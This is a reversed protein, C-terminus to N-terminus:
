PAVLRFYQAGTPSAIVARNTPSPVNFWNSTALDVNAQLHFQPFFESWAVEVGNTQRAIRLTPHGNPDAFGVTASPAGLNGAMYARVFYRAGDPPLNTVTYIPTRVDAIETGDRYVKYGSVGFDDDADRWALVGNTTMTNTAPMWWAVNLGDVASPPNTDARGILFVRTDHLSFNFTYTRGENTYTAPAAGNTRVEVIQEIPIWSPVRVTASAAPLDTLVWPGLTPGIEDANMNAVVLVMADEGILSRAEVRLPFTAVNPITESYLCRTRIHNLQMTANVIAQVQAPFNRDQDITSTFFLIVKAGAM